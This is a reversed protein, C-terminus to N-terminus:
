EDESEEQPAAAELEGALYDAVVHSAPAWAQPNTGAGAHAATHVEKKYNNLIKLLENKKPSQNIYYMVDHENIDKITTDAGRELLLKFIATAGNAAALMLVTQGGGKRGLGSIVESQQNIDVGNDLLAKIFYDDTLAYNTKDVLEINYFMAFLPSRNGPTGGTYQANANIDLGHRVLATLIATIANKATTGDNLVYNPDILQADNVLIAMCPYAYLPDTSIFFINPHIFTRVLTTLSAGNDLAKTVGKVDLNYLATALAITAADKTKEEASKKIEAAHLSLASLALVAILKKM